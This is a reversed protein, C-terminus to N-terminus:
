KPVAATQTKRDMCHLRPRLGALRRVQGAASHGLSIGPGWVSAKELGLARKM